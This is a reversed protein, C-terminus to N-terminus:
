TFFLVLMLCLLLWGLLIVRIVLFYFGEFIFMLVKRNQACGMFRNVLMLEFIFAIKKLFESFDLAVRNPDHQRDIVIFVEIEEVVGNM